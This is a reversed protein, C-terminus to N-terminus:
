PLPDIAPLLQHRIAVDRAIRINIYKPASNPQAEARTSVVQEEQPDTVVAYLEPFAGGVTEDVDTFQDASYQFRAEGREDTVASGLLDDRTLRDRDFLAVKAGAIPQSSDDDVAVRVTTTFYM